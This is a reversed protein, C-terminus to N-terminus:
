SLDSTIKGLKGDVIFIEQQIKKKAALRSLINM